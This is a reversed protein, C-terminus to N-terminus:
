APCLMHTSCSHSPNLRTSKRDLARTGSPLIRTVAKIDKFDNQLLPGFPPAVAGLKLSVAGTESNLFTREVRYINDAHTNYRDYSLENLLYATILLCCTLGVTLGFLNIFSIFKYKNLNRWAIKIYNQIM